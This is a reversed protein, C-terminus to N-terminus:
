STATDQEVYKSVPWQMEPIAIMFFLQIHGNECEGDWLKVFKAM